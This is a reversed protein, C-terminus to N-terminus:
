FIMWWATTLIAVEVAAICAITFLVYQRRSESQDPNVVAAM